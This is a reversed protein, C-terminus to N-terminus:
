AKRQQHAHLWDAGAMPRRGPSQITDIKLQGQGCHVHLSKAPASYDIAGPTQDTADAQLAQAQHIRVPEGDLQGHAVPWPHYARINRALQEASQTWDIMADHKRIKPAHTAQDHDQPQAPALTGQSLEELAQSLTDAALASLRQQLAGATEDPLIDLTKLYRVDGTDLGKDMQMLAIGTHTDGALIAQQIPSAGRWRPLISAHLNWCGHTPLDLVSPPLLLGYAATIMLDPQLAALTREITQDNLSTPTLVNLDHALALQKVPSPTLSRGRGAPRDPQTLVAVPRHQDLLASLPACAFEPTGAFLINM